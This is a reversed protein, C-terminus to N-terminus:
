SCAMRQQRSVASGVMGGASMLACAAQCRSSALSRATFIAATLHRGM